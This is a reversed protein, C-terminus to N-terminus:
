RSPSMEVRYGRAWMCTIASDKRNRDLVEPSTRPAPGTDPLQGVAIMRCEAADAAIQGEPVGAKAFVREQTPACGGAVTTICLLLAARRLRAM